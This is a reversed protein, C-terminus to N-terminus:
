NVQMYSSQHQLGITSSEMIWLGTRGGREAKTCTDNSALEQLPAPNCLGLRTLIIGCHVVLSLVQIHAAPHLEILVLKHENISVLVSQPVHLLM